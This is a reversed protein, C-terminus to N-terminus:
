GNAQGIKEAKQKGNRNKAKAMRGVSDNHTIYPVQIPPFDPPQVYM